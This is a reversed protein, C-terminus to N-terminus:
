LEEITFSVPISSVLHLSGHSFSEQVVLYLHDSFTRNSINFRSERSVIALGYNNTFTSTSISFFSQDTFIAGRLSTVNLKINKVISNTFNFSSKSASIIGASNFESYAHSFYSISEIKASTVNNLILTTLRGEMSLFVSDEVIFQEVQSFRIGGCGIFHLNMMSAFTTEGISLRGQRGCEISM